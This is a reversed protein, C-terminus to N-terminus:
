GRRRAAALATELAPIRERHIDYRLLGFYAVANTYDAILQDATTDGAWKCTWARGAEIQGRERDFLALGALAHDGGQDYLERGARWAVEAYHQAHRLHAQNVSPM